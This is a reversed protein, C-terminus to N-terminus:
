ARQDGRRQAFASAYLCIAAATSLNLSEARGYIPVSVVRDALRLQDRDLGRAENGMLWVTPRALDGSAALEALDHDGGGAAALVQM